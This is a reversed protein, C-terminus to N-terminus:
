CTQGLYVADYVLWAEREANYTIQYDFLNREQSRPYGPSGDSAWIKYESSDQCANITVLGNDVGEWEQGFAGLSEFTIAGETKAPGEVNVKDENLQPGNAIQGADDLVITLAPGDTISELRGTDSGGAANVEGRVEFWETLVTDAAEIAEEESEPPAVPGRTEEPTATAETPEPTPDATPTCGALLASGLAVAALATIIRKTTM